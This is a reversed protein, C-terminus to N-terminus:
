APPASPKIQREEINNGVIWIALQLVPLWSEACIDTALINRGAYALSGQKQWPLSHMLTQHWWNSQKYVSFCFFGLLICIVMNCVMERQEGILCKKSVKTDRPPPHPLDLKSITEQTKEVKYSAKYLGRAEM